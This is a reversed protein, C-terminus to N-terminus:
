ELDSPFNIVHGLGRPQDDRLFVTLKREVLSLFHGIFKEPLGIFEEDTCLSIDVHERGDWVLIVDAVESLAVVVGGEGLNKAFQGTKTAYMGLGSMVTKLYGALTEVSLGLEGSFNQDRVLQFINQRGVPIQEEFQKDAAKSDYDSQKFIKPDWDRKYQYMAGHIKRLEITANSEALRDRLRNELNKYGYNAKDNKSSFVGLQYAKGESQFMIEAMSGPDFEFQKRFRDILDRRWTESMDTMWSAAVFHDAILEQKLQSISIYSAIIQNMRYSSSPDLLLLDLKSGNTGLENRLAALVEIECAYAAADEDGLGSCQYIPIVEKVDAHEQLVKLAICEQNKAGCVVAAVVQKSLALPVLEEFAVTSAKMPDLQGTAVVDENCNRLQKVKPGIIAQDEKWSSSGFMGGVVVKYSSVDKSGVAEVISQKLAEVKYTKAWLYVDLSVYDDEPWTRAVIYGEKMVLVSTEFAYLSDFLTTFGQKEAVDKLISSIDNALASTHEANIIELVGATRDQVTPAEPIKVDCKDKPAINKRYDHMLDFRTEPTHMTGYLFTEVGHDYVPDHFFDVNNSGFALTQSCIVPSEYFLEVSYDFASSLKEMYHENKVLVGQPNLLLAMADFVDLEKTVSFSVVTESLDVLVLDFSGWYEEPLLLLSKTADGFWWEVRPDDFHPSTRFHKFCKRTVTQDLELGVVKELNPYKLAEHLLMSDGGGIFIVRKIDKVFRAAAHSVYEHYQPRYNSCIQVIQDLDMCVDDISPKELFTMAQYTTKVFELQDWGRFKLLEKNDCLSAQYDLDDFEWNLPDYHSGNATLPPLEEYLSSASCTGDAGDACSPVTSSRKVTEVVDDDADADAKTTTIPTTTMPGLAELAVTMAIINADLFKWITDWEHRPIGHDREEFAFNWDINKIRRLRMIEWKLEIKLQERSKLDNPRPQEMWRLEVEGNEDEDLDFEIENNIFHWRQPFYEVFGYDRLMEATGYEFHRGECEACKDYSILIQEGPEITRTATTEHWRTNRKRVLEQAANTWNGNRHNYADYAPIMIEDDSRAVVLMAALAAIEDNPDGGCVEYWQGTIWDSPDKPYLSKQLIDDLLSKGAESWTSPIQGYPENGLYIAYPAYRSDAGLRIERALARVTSCAMQGEDDDEDPKIITEWPVKAIVEGAEIRKTAYVGLPTNVDGPVERRLQQKPTIYGGTSGSVWHFIEQAELLHTDESLVATPVVLISASLSLIWSSWMKKLLM